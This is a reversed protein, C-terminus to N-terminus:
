TIVFSMIVVNTFITLAYCVIIGDAEALDNVVPLTSTDSSILMTTYFVDHLLVCKEISYQRDYTGM